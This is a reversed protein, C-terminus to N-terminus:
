AEIVDTSESRDTKELKDKVRTELDIIFQTANFEPFREEMEYLVAKINCSFTQDFLQILNDTSSVTLSLIEIAEDLNFGTESGGTIGEILGINHGGSISLLVIHTVEHRLIRYNFDDDTTMHTETSGHAQVNRASSSVYIFNGLQSGYHNRSTGIPSVYHNAEPTLELDLPEFVIINEPANVGLDSFNDIGEILSQAAILPMTWNGKNGINGVRYYHISTSGEALPITVKFYEADPYSAFRQTLEKTDDWTEEWIARNTKEDVHYLNTDESINKLPSHKEVLEYFINLGKIGLSETIASTMVPAVQYYHFDLLKLNDTDDRESPPTDDLALRHEIENAEEHSYYNSAYLIYALALRINEASFNPSSLSQNKGCIALLTNKVSPFKFRKEGFDVAPDRLTHTANIAYEVGDVELSEPSGDEGFVVTQGFDLEGLYVQGTYDRKKIFEGVPNGHTDKEGYNILGKYDRGGVPTQTRDM